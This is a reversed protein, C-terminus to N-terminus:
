STMVAERTIMVPSIGRWIGEPHRRAFSERLFYTNLERATHCIYFCPLLGYCISSCASVESQTAGHYVGFAHAHTHPPPHLTSWENFIWKPSEPRSCIALIYTCPTVSGFIPHPEDEENFTMPDNSRQLSSWGMEFVSIWFLHHVGKSQRSNEKGLSSL